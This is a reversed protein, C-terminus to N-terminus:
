ILTQTGIKIFFHTFFNSSVPEVSVTFCAPAARVELLSSFTSLTEAETRCFGSKDVRLREALNPIDRVDKRQIKNFILNLIVGM